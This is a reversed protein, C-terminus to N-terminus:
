CVIGGCDLNNIKGGIFEKSVLESCSFEGSTKGNMYYNVKKKECCFSYSNDSSSFFNCGEIVSDVNSYSFYSKIRDNFSGSSTTFFLIIMVLLTLALIILVITSWIMEFGKKDMRKTM